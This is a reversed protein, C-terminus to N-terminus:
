RKPDRLAQNMMSRVSDEVQRATEKRSTGAAFELPEGFHVEVDIAGEALLDKVHPVLDQDGVWAAIARHQRGMPLGQLRTYTIAVPQIFVKDAGGEDIALKAAGFLTSKFPLLINGDGTTGEAFLVVADGSALRSAIESAQEGSKRKREREVFISGQLRTLGGILPWRSMESKAIFAVDNFSALVMVDTWSVHNAAILLPRSTSMTGTVHVRFGLARLILGNCWRRIRRPKYLGTKVGLYAFPVLLALGVAVCLLALGIRLKAFM